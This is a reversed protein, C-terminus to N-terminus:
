NKKRVVRRLTKVSTRLNRRDVRSHETYLFIFNYYISCIIYATAKFPASVSGGQIYTCQVVFVNLKM